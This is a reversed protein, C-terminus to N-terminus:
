LLVINDLKQELDKFSWAPELRLVLARLARRARHTVQPDPGDHAWILLRLAWPETLLAMDDGHPEHAEFTAMCVTVFEGIKERHCCLQDRLWEQKAHAEAAAAMADSGPGSRTAKAPGQSPM